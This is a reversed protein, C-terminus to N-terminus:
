GRTGTKKAPEAQLAGGTLIQLEYARGRPVREGWQGIAQRSIGLVKALKRASGFHSIAQDTRM